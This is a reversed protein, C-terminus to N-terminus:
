TEEDFIISKWQHGSDREFYKEFNFPQPFFRLPYMLHTKFSLRLYLIKQYTEVEIGLEKCFEIIRGAIRARYYITQQM